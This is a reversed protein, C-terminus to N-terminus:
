PWPFTPVNWGRFVNGLSWFVASMFEGLIMGLMFPAIKRFSQIGGFRMVCSKIVWALFFPFWLVIMAWTPALAYGLPNFPFWSFASRGAVLLLTVVIGVAFGGYETGGPKPLADQIYGAGLGYMNGANNSPYNYLQLNGKSYCVHLFSYSAAICSIVVSLTLPLLLARPKLNTEKAMKQTDMFPSLLVGRMDRAFVINTSSLMTLNTAGLASIPVALGILHLPLFSTETILLGGEAVGRTMILAILFIYIGMQAAALFPNMGALTLWVIIGAFGVIIGLVAARYPMLEQSDDLGKGQGFATRLVMRYYPWGVRFQALALVVYAGAAQYGTWVTSNHTGIGTATAGFQVAMGDQFRTLLFFFWFSFLLDLPLFYAFGIAALSLEAPTYEIANWPRESLFSNLNLEPNLLPWDPFNYHLGNLGFMLVPILVGWWMIPNSFFPEGATDDNAIALPLVTLPFRLQENEVWQRRLITALSAFVLIVCGILAFWACLPGLWVHWPVSGTSNGMYFDAIAPPPSTLAATPTFPYAWRPLHQILLENYKNGRTAYYPLYALSPLLKEIVGRTSVMVGVLSMAYVAIMEGPSLIEIKTLRTVARNALAILFLAILAPPALQLVGVQIVKSVNDAYVSFFCLLVLLPLGVVYTRARLGRATPRLEHVPLADPSTPTTQVTVAM